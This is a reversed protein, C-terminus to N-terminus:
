RMQEPLRVDREVWESLRLRPPPILSRLANRRVTALTTVIKSSRRAKAKTSSYEHCRLNEYV